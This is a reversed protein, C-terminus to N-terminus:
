PGRKTCVVVRELKSKVPGPGELDVMHCAMVHVICRWKRWLQTLRTCKEFVTTLTTVYALRGPGPASAHLGNLLVNMGSTLLEGMTEQPTAMAGARAQEFWDREHLEALIHGMALVAKMGVDKNPRTHMTYYLDSLLAALLESSAVDSTSLAMADMARDMSGRPSRFMTSVTPLIAPASLGPKVPRLTTFVLKIRDFLISTSLATHLTNPGAHSVGVDFTDAGTEHYINISFYEVEGLAIDLYHAQITLKDGRGTVPPLVHFKYMAGLAEIATLIVRIAEYTTTTTHVIHIGQSMCEFGPHPMMLADPCTWIGAPGHFGDLAADWVCPTPVAPVCLANQRELKPVESYVEFKPVSSAAYVRLLDPTSMPIPRMRKTRGGQDCPAKTKPPSSEM